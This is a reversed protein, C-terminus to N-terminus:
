VSQCNTLRDFITGFKEFHMFFPESIWYGGIRGENLVKTDNPRVLINRLHDAYIDQKQTIKCQSYVIIFIVFCSFICM